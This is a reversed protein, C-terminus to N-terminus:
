ISLSFGFRKIFQILLQKNNEFYIETEIYCNAIIFRKIFM